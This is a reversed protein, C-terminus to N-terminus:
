PVIEVVESTFGTTDTIVLPCVHCADWGAQSFWRCTARITCRGVNSYESKRTVEALTQDIVSCRSGTWQPCGGEICRHAFRFRRELPGHELQVARFSEDVELPPKIYGVMGDASIVGIVSTGVLGAASPCTREEVANDIRNM